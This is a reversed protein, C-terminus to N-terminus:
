CMDARLVLEGPPVSFSFYSNNDIRALPAGTQDALIWSIGSLFIKERYVYIVAKDPEAVHMHEGYESRSPSTTCGTPALLVISFALCLLRM